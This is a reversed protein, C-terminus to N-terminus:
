TLIGWRLAKEEVRSPFGAAVSGVVEGDERGLGLACCM